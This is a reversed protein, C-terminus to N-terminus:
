SVDRRRDLQTPGTWPRAAMGDGQRVFEGLYWEQLALLEGSPRISILRQEIDRYLRQLLDWLRGMTDPASPPVRYRLDVTEAGSAM